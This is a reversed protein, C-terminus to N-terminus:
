GEPEIALGRYQIWERKVQIRPEWIDRKGTPAPTLVFRWGAANVESGVLLASLEAAMSDVDALSGYFSFEIVVEHVSTAGSSNMHIRDQFILYACLKASERTLSDMVQLPMDAQFIRCDQPLVPKLMTEIADYITVM